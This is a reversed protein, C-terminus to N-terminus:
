TRMSDAKGRQASMLMALEGLARSVQAQFRGLHMANSEVSGKRRLLRSAVEFGESQRAASSMAIYRHQCPLRTGSVSTSASVYRLSKTRHASPLTQTPKFSKATFFM